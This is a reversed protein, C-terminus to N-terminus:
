ESKPWGRGAKSIADATQKVKPGLRKLLQAATLRSSPVTIDIAVRPEGRATPVFMAISRAGSTFEEDSLLPARLDLADLQALLVDSDTIAHETHAVLEGAAALCERREAEPLSALLVKGLATCHIPVHAGARLERDIEHQGRGHAHLRHVYTVRPGDLVGMSVTYGAESRLQKLPAEAPLQRRITRIAELGVNAAGVALTYRRKSDQQLYGLQVLTAAYRHSTSRNLGILDAMQAIGISQREESYLQLFSLGYIVSLSLRGDSSRGGEGASHGDGRQGRQGRGKSV